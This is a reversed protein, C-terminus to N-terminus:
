KGTNNRASITEAGTNAGRALFDRLDKRSVPLETPRYGCADFIANTIAPALAVSACEGLGKAGFPGNPESGTVFLSIIEPTESISPIHYNRFNETLGPLFNETLAFGIGMAVGGEVQGEAADRNITFGCDHAAVVREVTVKGTEIDVAVEVMETGYTYIEYPVTADSSESRRTATSEYRNRRRIEGGQVLTKFEVRINRDARAEVAGEVLVLEDTPMGLEKGASKLLKTEIERAVAVVAQGSMYTQRSASTTDADPTLLSDGTTVTVRKLDQNLARAAIQGMVTTCGQGMETAGVFVMIQGEATLAIEAECVNPSNTRGIGFWMSAVGRGRLIRPTDERFQTKGRWGEVADLTEKFGVDAGLVQSSATVDGGKYGNRRRFDIPDINLRRAMIDIQSELAFAVQPGGYGRMAGAVPNNTYVSRGYVRVHPIRYPGTATLVARSLVGPGASAYAGTDVLVDMELAMLLGDSSCGTRCTITFPHRKTTALFSEERTYVMRAPRRLRHTALAVFCQVSMDIKGGFGGGIVSQSMRVKEIPLGLVKAIERQDHHAAQTPGYVVICGEGDLYSIGAEPELYAHENFSTSYTEEIVLDAMALGEQVDGRELRQTAMVNGGPHHIPADEALAALPDLLPNLVEYDVKVVRAVENAVAETEAVVVAVPEGRFRVIEEALVPQDDRQRKYRNVGPIDAATYIALAGPVELAVSSDVRVIRAYSYPSRVAKLHVTGSFVLDAGYIATGTVKALADPRIACGPRHERNNVRVPDDSIYESALLVADIIKVYGTCRCLQGQLGRLIEAKSPHPNVDLLAKAAMIMGPTCFGCQVAGSEIFARQISHPNEPTGLGEITLVHRGVTEGVTVKCARRLRGDIIITCTGCHGKGCGEKTGTIGLDNRM